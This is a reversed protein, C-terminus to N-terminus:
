STRANRDANIAATKLIDGLKKTEPSAPLTGVWGTILSFLVVLFFLGIVLESIILLMVLWADALPLIDGYGLTTITVFSFYLARISTLEPKFSYALMVYFVSYSIVIQAFAFITLVASRLANAPFRSIFAISTNAVLNDLLLSIVIVLLIINLAVTQASSQFTIPSALVLAIVLLFFRICVYRGARGEFFGGWSKFWRMPSFFLEYSLIVQAIRLWFKGSPGKVVQALRRPSDTSDNPCTFRAGLHEDETKGYETNCKACYAIAETPLREPVKTM